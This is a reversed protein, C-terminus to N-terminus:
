EKGESEAQVRFVLRGVDPTEDVSKARLNWEDFKRELIWAYRQWGGPVDDILGQQLNAKQDRLARKYLSVFLSIIGEDDIEGAKYRKFTRYSIQDEEDLQENVLDVLEEDTYIIAYGVSHPHNFVKEMAKTWKEWKPQQGQRRKKEAM